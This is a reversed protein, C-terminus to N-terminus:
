RMPERRGQVHRRNTNLCLTIIFFILSLEDTDVSSRHPEKLRLASPPPFFLTIMEPAFINFSPTLPNFGNYRYNISIYYLIHKTQGNTSVNHNVLRNTAHWWNILIWTISQIFNFNENFIFHM